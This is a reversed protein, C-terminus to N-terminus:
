HVNSIISYTCHLLTPTPHPCEVFVKEFFDLFHSFFSTSGQGVAQPRPLPGKPMPSPM